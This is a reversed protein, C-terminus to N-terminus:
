SLRETLGRRAKPADMILLLNSAPHEHQMCNEKLITVGANKAIIIIMFLYM